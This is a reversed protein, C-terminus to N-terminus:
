PKPPIAQVADYNRYHLARTSDHQQAYDFSCWTGHIERTELLRHTDKTIYYISTKAKQPAAYKWSPMPVGLRKASLRNLAVLKNVDLRVPLKYM